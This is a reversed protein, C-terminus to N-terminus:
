FSLIKQVNIETFDNIVLCTNKIENAPYTTAVGVVNMGANMAAQIGTHSDEFVLCESPQVNLLQASKLYIEPDPKGKSVHDESVKTDFFIQIKTEDLVFDVNVLPASSGVGIKFGANKIEKLFFPLGDVLKVHPKYLERYLEEKELGMKQGLKKDIPKDYLLNFIEDNTRGYIVKRFKEEDIDINLKECYLFWAKKHYEYNHVLVGDM